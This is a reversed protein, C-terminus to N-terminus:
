KKRGFLHVEYERHNLMTEINKVIEERAEESRTFYRLVNGYLYHHTGKITDVIADPILPSFALFPAMYYHGEYIEYAAYASLGSVATALGLHSIRYCTKLKM